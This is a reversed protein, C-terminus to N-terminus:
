DQEPRGDEAAGALRQWGGEAREIRKMQRSGQYPAIPHATREHHGRVVASQGQGCARETEVHEANFRRPGSSIPLSRVNIKLRRNTAKAAAASTARASSANRRAAVHSTTSDGRSRAGTAATKPPLVGKRAM